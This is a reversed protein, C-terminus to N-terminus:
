RIGAAKQLIYIVEPLGIKGDGNVDIPAAIGIVAPKFGAMIQLVLIVDALTPNDVGVQLYASVSASVLKEHEALAIMQYRGTQTVSTITGRWLSSKESDQTLDIEPYGLLKAQRITRIDQV